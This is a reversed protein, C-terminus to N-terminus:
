QRALRALRSAAETDWIPIASASASASLPMPMSVLQVMNSEIAYKYWGIWGRTVYDYVVNWNRCTHIAGQREFTFARTAFDGPELTLDAHCLISERLVNLCHHTHGEEFEQGGRRTIESRFYKLCHVQHFMSVYFTRNSPGLRVVGFGHPSHHLWEDTSGEETFSYHVSEEVALEVPPGLEFPLEFPVDDDEYTYLSEKGASSVLRSAFDADKFWSWTRFVSLICSCAVLVAYLQIIRTAATM